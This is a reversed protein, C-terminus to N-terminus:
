ESISHNQKFHSISLTVTVSYLQLLHLIQNFIKCDLISAIEIIKNIPRSHFMCTHPQLKYNTETNLVGTETNSPETEARKPGNRHNSLGCTHTNDISNSIVRKESILMVGYSKYIM